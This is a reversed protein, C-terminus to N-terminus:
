PEIRLLQSALRRFASRKLTTDLPTLESYSLAWKGVAQFYKKANKLPEVHILLRRDKLGEPHELTIVIYGAETPTIAGIHFSLDGQNAKQSARLASALRDALVKTNSDISPAKMSVADETKGISPPLTQATSIPELAELAVQTWFEPDFAESHWFIAANLFFSGLRSGERDILIMGQDIRITGGAQLAKLRPDNGSLAGTEFDFQSGVTSKPLLEIYQGPRDLLLLVPRSSIMPEEVARDRGLTQWRAKTLELSAQCDFSCPVHIISWFPSLLPSIPGPQQSRGLLFLWEYISASPSTAHAFSRACCAPYALLEGIREKVSVLRDPDAETNLLGTLRAAEAVDQKSQGFFVDFAAQDGKQEGTAQLQIQAGREQLHQGLQKAGDARLSEIRNVRNLGAAQLAMFRDAEQRPPEMPLPDDGSRDPVSPEDTLYGEPSGPDPSGLARDLLKILQDFQEERSRTKAGIWTQVRQYLPDAKLEPSDDMRTTIQNIWGVRPDEFRWPSEDPYFNRRATNLAPDAYSETLLGDRQALAYMPLGPYLRLRSTLLKGCLRHLDFHRVVSLNLALDELRTWPTFLITSLGGQEQFGFSQPHDAELQRMARIAALHQWPEIGKNMRQLEVASFNEIGVLCVLIRHGSGALTEAAKRLKKERRLLHDSRSDLLLDTEPLDEASLQRTLVDIEKLVQQGVVRLQSRKGSGTLPYTAHFARIQELARQAASGSWARQGGGGVCFACGSTKCNSLDVGKYVPNNVVSKKYSCDAGALVFGLPAMEKAARNAPVFGFDPQVAEFLSNFVSPQRKGSGIGLWSLLQLGGIEPPHDPDSDPKNQEGTETPKGSSLVCAQLTPLSAQITRWLSVTPQNSFIVHTTDCALEELLGTRDEGELGIGAEAQAYQVAPDIGFRLWRVSLGLQHKFLSHLFPFEVGLMYRGLAAFEILLVHPAQCKDTLATM